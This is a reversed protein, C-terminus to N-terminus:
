FRPGRGMGGGPGGMGGPGGPGGFGGPGGMGNTTTSNVGKFSQLNYVVTLMVYRPMVNYYSTTIAMDSVSRTYSRQTGLIDYGSIKVELKNNLFKKGLAANWLLNQIENGEMASGGYYSYTLTHEMTFGKWILWQLSANANHTLYNRPNDTSKVDSFSLDYGFTFDLNQSINSTIDIGPNLSRSISTTKHEDLLLNGNNDASIYEQLGHYVNYSGTLDFNVNSMILDFPMGYTVGFYTFYTNDDLNMPRTIQAGKVMTLGAFQDGGQQYFAVPLQDVQTDVNTITTVTGIPNHTLSAGLHFQLNTAKEMNSHIFRGHLSHSQEQGLNPNGTSLSLPNANNVSQQLSSIGPASTDSNYFVHLSNGSSGNWEMMAMPMINYYIKSDITYSPNNPDDSSFQTYIQKGSLDAREAELRAMLNFSDNHFRWGFDVSQRRYDSIFNNTLNVDVSDRTTVMGNRTIQDYRTERESESHNNNMRLSASLQMNENLPETLTADVGYNYNHTDSNVQQEYREFGALSRLTKDGQSKSDSGSLNGQAAVSFTRGEKGLKHRWVLNGGMNYGQGDSVSSNTTSATDAAAAPNTITYNRSSSESGNRQLSMRPRFIIEDNDSPKYSIRMNFNHSFNKMDSTSYAETRRPLTLFDSFTSDEQHTDTMNFFYSGQMTLKDDFFSDNYNGGLANARAVGTQAGWMRGGMGGMAGAGMLDDFSFNRQNVNNSLGMLTIRHNGKFININFNTNYRPTFVDALNEDAPLDHGGQATFKGFVGNRKYSRTRVDLAKVSEGDDFGTFEAQDSKKDFVAVSQVVEAPLTRLALKPDNEFFEKGDVLVKEITEGQAEVGSDTVKMGPMKAILEEATAGEMVKYGDANIVTTDATQKVRMNKGLVQTEKLMVADEELKIKGLANSGFPNFNYEKSFTKYGMYSIEVVYKGPRELTLTFLGKDNTIAFTGEGGASSTAKAVAAVLPESTKKDIVTGTVKLEMRPQATARTISMVCLSCFVMLCCMLSRLTYKM